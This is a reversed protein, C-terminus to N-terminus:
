MFVGLIKKYIMFLQNTINLTEFFHVSIKPLLLFFFLRIFFFIIDKFIKLYTHLLAFAKQYIM